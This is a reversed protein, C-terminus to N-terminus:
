VSRQHATEDLAYLRFSAYAGCSYLAYFHDFAAQEDVRVVQDSVIANCLAYLHEGPRLLRKAGAYDGPTVPLARGAKCDRVDDAPSYFRPM